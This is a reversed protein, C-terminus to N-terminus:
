LLEEPSLAVIGIYAPFDATNFTLLHTVQHAHMVAVLRADHVRKGMIRQAAVLSLWHSFIRPNEELLPIQRLLRDTAAKAQAGTWGLGNAPRPRTALAWFEIIVQATLFCLQRESLLRQVAADAVSHKTAHLEAARVLINTDILYSDM